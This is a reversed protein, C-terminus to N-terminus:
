KPFPNIAAFIDDLRDEAEANGMFDVGEV